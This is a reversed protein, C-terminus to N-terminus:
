RTPYIDISKRELKGQGNVVGDSLTIKSDSDATIEIRVEPQIALAINNLLGGFNSLLMLAAILLAIPKRTKIM